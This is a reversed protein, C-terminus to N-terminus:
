LKEIISLFKWTFTQMSNVFIKRM